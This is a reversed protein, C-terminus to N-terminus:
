GEFLDCMISDDTKKMYDAWIQSQQDLTKDECKVEAFKPKTKVRNTEDHMRDILFRM